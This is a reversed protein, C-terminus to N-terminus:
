FADNRVPHCETGQRSASLQPVRPPVDPDTRPVAPVPACADRLRSLLVRPRVAPVGDGDPRIRGVRIPDGPRRPVVGMGQPSLRGRRIEAQAGDAARLVGQVGATGACRRAGERASGGGWRRFPCREKDPYPPFQFGWVWGGVACPSGLFLFSSVKPYTSKPTGFRRRQKAGFFFSPFLPKDWRPPLHFGKILKIVRPTCVIPGCLFKPHLSTCISKPFFHLLYLTCMAIYVCSFGDM